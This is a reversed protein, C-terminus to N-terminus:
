PFKVFVVSKFVLSDLHYSYFFSVVIFLVSTLVVNVRFCCVSCCSINIVVSFLVVCCLVHKVQDYFM